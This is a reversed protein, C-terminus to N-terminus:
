IPWWNPEMATPQGNGDPTEMALAPWIFGVSFGSVFGSLAWWLFPVSPQAARYGVRM